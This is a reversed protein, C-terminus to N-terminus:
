RRLVLKPFLRTANQKALDEIQCPNCGISEAMTEFLIEREETSFDSELSSTELLIRNFPVLKLVELSNATGPILSKPSFSIYGGMATIIEVLQPAIQYCHFVFGCKPRHEKLIAIMVETAYVDRGNAHIILPLLCKDALEISKHVAAIEKVIDGESDIGTQGIGVIKETGETQMLDELESLGGNLCLPHIGVTAYMNEYQSSLALAMRNSETNGGINIVNIDSSAVKEATEHKFDSEGSNRNEKFLNNMITIKTM